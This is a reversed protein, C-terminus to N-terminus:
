PLHQVESKSTQEVKLERIGEQLKQVEAEIGSVSVALKETLL